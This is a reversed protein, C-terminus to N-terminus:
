LQSIDFVARRETLFRRVAELMPPSYPLRLEVSGTLPDVGIESRPLALAALLERALTLPEDNDRPLLLFLVRPPDKPRRSM